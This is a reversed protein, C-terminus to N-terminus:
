LLYEATNRLITSGPVINLPYGIIDASKKEKIQKKKQEIWSSVIRWTTDTYM